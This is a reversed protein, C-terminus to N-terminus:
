TGQPPATQNGLSDIDIQPRERRLEVEGVRLKVVVSLQTTAEIPLSKFFYRGSGTARCNGRSDNGRLYQHLRNTSRNQKSTVRRVPSRAEIRM